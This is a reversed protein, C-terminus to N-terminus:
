VLISILVKKCYLRNSRKEYVRSNQPEFALQGKGKESGDIIKASRNPFLLKSWHPEFPWPKQNTIPPDRDTKHIEPIWPENSTIPIIISPLSFSLQSPPKQVESNAHKQFVCYLLEWLNFITFELLYRINDVGRLAKWPYNVVSTPPSQWVAKFTCNVLLSPILLSAGICSYTNCIFM